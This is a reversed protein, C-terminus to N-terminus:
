GKLLTRCFGFLTEEGQVVVHPLHVARDQICMIGVRLREVTAALTEAREQWKRLEKQEDETM